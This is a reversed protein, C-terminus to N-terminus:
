CSAVLPELLLRLRCRCCCYFFRLCCYFFRLCCHDATTLLSFGASGAVLLLMLLCCIIAAVLLLYGAALLRCCCCLPRPAPGLATRPRRQSAVSRLCRQRPNCAAASRAHPKAWGSLASHVAAFAPSRAFHVRSSPAPVWGTPQFHLTPNKFAGARCWAAVLPWSSTARSSSADPASTLELTFM